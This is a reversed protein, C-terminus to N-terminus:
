AQKRLRMAPVRWAAELAIALSMKSQGVRRDIFRIPVEAIRAGLRHARWTTEVQFVYGSANLTGELVRALLDSRWAKYGGTPDQVPLGLWARAYLSGFRSIARRLLGWNGIGGGPVYRSGIALNHQDLATLLAPLVAPDHSGDADMQVVRRTTDSNLVAAFGDLYAKGLGEKRARHLVHVRGNATALDDAADGTGDPSNDDIVLVGAAPLAHLVQNVIAPLNEMENYTPLCVWTEVSASVTM